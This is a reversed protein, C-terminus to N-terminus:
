PAFGERKAPHSTLGFRRQGDLKAANYRRVFYEFRNRSVTTGDLWQDHERIAALHLRDLKRIHDLMAQDSMVPMKPM